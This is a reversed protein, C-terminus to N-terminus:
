IAVRTFNDGTALVNKLTDYAIFFNLYCDIIKKKNNNNRGITQRPGRIHSVRCKPANLDSKFFAFVSPLAM